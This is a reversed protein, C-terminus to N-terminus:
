IQVLSVNSLLLLSHFGVSDAVLLSVMAPGIRSSSQGWPGGTLLILSPLKHRRFCVSVRRNRVLSAKRAAFPALVPTKKEEPKFTSVTWAPDYADLRTKPKPREPTMFTKSRQLGFPTVMPKDVVESIKDLGEWSSSLVFAQKKRKFSSFLGKSKAVPRRENLVISADSSKGRMSNKKETNQQSLDHKARLSARFFGETKETKNQHNKVDKEEVRVKPEFKIEQALKELSQSLNKSTDIPKRKGVPVSHKREIKLNYSNKMRNNDHSSDSDTDLDKPLKTRAKPVPKQPRDERLSELNQYDVPEQKRKPECVHEAPVYFPREECSRIVQWWDKNTKNILYLKEGKKIQITRGKSASYVYDYLVIVHTDESQQM